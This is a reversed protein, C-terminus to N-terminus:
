LCCHTQSIWSIRPIIDIMAELESTDVHSIQTTISLLM